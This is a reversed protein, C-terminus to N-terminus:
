VLYYKNDQLLFNANFCVMLIAHAYSLLKNDQVLFNAKFCAMLTVPFLLLLLLFLM